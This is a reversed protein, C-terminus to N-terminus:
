PSRTRDPAHPPRRRPHVRFALLHALPELRRRVGRVDVFAEIDECFDDLFSFASESFHVRELEGDMVSQSSRISQEQSM